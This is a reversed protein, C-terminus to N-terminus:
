CLAGEMVVKRTCEPCLRLWADSMRGRSVILGCRSCRFEDERVLEEGPSPLVEPPAEADVTETTTM